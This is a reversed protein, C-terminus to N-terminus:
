GDSSPYKERHDKLLASLTSAAAERCTEPRTDYRHLGLDSLKIQIGTVPFGDVESETLAEIIGEVIGTMATQLFFHRHAEENPEPFQLQLETYVRHDAPLANVFVMKEPGHYPEVCFAVQAYRGGSPTMRSLKEGRQVPDPGTWIPEGNGTPPESRYPLADVAIPIRWGRGDRCFASSVMFIEKTQSFAIQAALRCSAFKSDIQHLSMKTLSVWIGSLPRGYASYINLSNTVGEVVGAICEDLFPQIKEPHESFQLKLNAHMEDNPPIDYAFVAREPGHYPGVCLWVDAYLPGSSTIRSCRGWRELASFVDWLPIGEPIPALKLPMLEQMVYEV